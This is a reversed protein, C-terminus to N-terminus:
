HWHVKRPKIIIIIIIIIIVFEVAKPVWFDMAANALGRWDDMDQASDIWNRTNICIEELNM